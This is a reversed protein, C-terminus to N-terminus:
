AEEVQRKLARKLSLIRNSIAVEDDLNLV